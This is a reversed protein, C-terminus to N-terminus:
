RYDEGFWTFSTGVADPIELAPWREYWDDPLSRIDDMTIEGGWRFGVPGGDSASYANYGVPRLEEFNFIASYSEPTQLDTQGWAAGWVPQYLLNNSRLHYRTGDEERAANITIALNNKVVVSSM